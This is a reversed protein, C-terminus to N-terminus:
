LWGPTCHCVTAHLLAAALAPFPFPLSPNCLQVQRRPCSLQLLVHGRELAGIWVFLTGLHEGKSERDVQMSAAAMLLVALSDNEQFTPEIRKVQAEEGGGAWVRKCAVKAEKDGGAWVRKCAVKAEEGGGAWVRKCAVKAEEGGGAWVRKCAVKAEEGGGAWVRKCAVKAEKGGGAWVRKCALCQSRIMCVPGAKWGIHVSLTGILLDQAWFDLPLHLIRYSYLRPFNQVPPELSDFSRWVLGWGRGGGISGM